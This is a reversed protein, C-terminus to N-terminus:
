NDCDPDLVIRTCATWVYVVVPELTDYSIPVHAVHPERM